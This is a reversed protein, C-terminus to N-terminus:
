RGVSAIYKKLEATFNELSFHQARERCSERLALVREPTLSLIAEKLDWRTFDPALLVGTEGQIM